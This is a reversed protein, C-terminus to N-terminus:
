TVTWIDYVVEDPRRIGSGVALVGNLWVYDPAATEFVPAIRFYYDGPAVEEGRALRAMTEPPGARLGAYRMLIAHGDDTVLPLRVDLLVSGDARELLWDEGPEVSGRLADGAFSGGSVRGVKRRGLPTAGVDLAGGVRLVLRMLYALPPPAPTM